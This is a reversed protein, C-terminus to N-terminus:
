ASRRRTSSTSSRTSRRRSSRGTAARRAGGGRAPPDGARHRGGRRRLPRHGRDDRGRGRAGPRDRRPGPFAPLLAPHINVVRHRFRHSSAAPQAAAHLRRPRRPRRGRAEIWDGIAADRAERDAISPPRSSARDRGRGGRARELARAAPKDSGVGVVEVEGRGHLRDLIAQLNTGSGPPSSSSASAREGGADQWSRPPPPGRSGRCRRRRDDLGPHAAPQAAVLQRRRDGLGAPQPRDRDVAGAAISRSSAAARASVPRGSATLRSSGKARRSQNSAAAAASTTTVKQPVGLRRM